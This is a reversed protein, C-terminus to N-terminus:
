ETKRFEDLPDVVYYGPFPDSSIGLRPRVDLEIEDRRVRPMVWADMSRVAFHHFEADSGRYFVPGPQFRHEDLGGYWDRLENATWPKSQRRQYAVVGFALAAIGAFTIAGCAIRTTRVKM